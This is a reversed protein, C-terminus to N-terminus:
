EHENEMEIMRNFLGVGSSQVIIVPVQLANQLEEVTMDDLFIPEDAKVIQSPLFLAEGLDKGQLQKVIDQGTLLGTVTIKEGFFDNRIPFVQLDLGPAAQKYIEAVQCVYDYAILGTITSVKRKGAWPKGDHDELYIDVADQAETLFLRTMGVGNELQIYGDYRDEGPMDYGATIYWEDSAHVFHEGFKEMAQQQFGEIISIVERADEKTFSELQCLGDRYKSLGVPVVSLSEITPAYALLDGITRRLEDGDNLGKCLVIQGNMTVDGKYLRDVKALADGAFRNHLMKCRLKPNMTQFSVNIPSLHFKIIRDLDYDSMNTLTVYNGQLFSLRSDDDKFYLTERMGPPMQDIFCFICHNSCSRYEDMLSNEFEVGLDDEYEKEVELEWEEGNKKRILLTVFEDNMLYRYDFVDEVPQGNISLLADGPELELEEGISDPLVRSIIHLNKKM